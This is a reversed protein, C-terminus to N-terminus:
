YNDKYWPSKYRSKRIVVFDNGPLIKGRMKKPISLKAARVSKEKKGDESFSVSVATESEQTKPLDKYAEPFNRKLIEKADRRNWKDTYKNGIIERLEDSSLEKEMNLLAPIVRNNIFKRHRCKKFISVIDAKTLDEKCINWAALKQSIKAGMIADILKDKGLDSCINVTGKNLQIILDSVM